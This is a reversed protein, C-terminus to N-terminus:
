LGHRGWGPLNPAMAMYGHSPDFVGPSGLAAHTVQDWHVGAEGALRRAIAGIQGILTKASAVKAREGRSAVITGAIDAIAARVWVRGVDIGVVWGAAANIEYLLASPGREGRSRGVERVLGAELLGTLALSVTPKSLGSVRAAQARSLPGQRHILELVSRENIARLLSPTGATIVPVRGGGGDPTANNMRPRSLLGM